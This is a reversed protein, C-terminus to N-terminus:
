KAAAHPAPSSAASASNSVRIKGIATRAAARSSLEGSKESSTACRTRRRKNIASGPCVGRMPVYAPRADSSLQVRATASRAALSNRVLWPRSCAESSSRRPSTAVPPVASNSRIRAWSLSSNRALKTAASPLKDRRERVTSRRCTTSPTVRSPSAVAYPACRAVTARQSADARLASKFPVRALIAAASLSLGSSISLRMSCARLRRSMLMARKRSDSSSPVGCLQVDRHPRATRTPTPRPAFRRSTAASDTTTAWRMNTSTSCILVGDAHMVAARQGDPSAVVRSLHAINGLDLAMAREGRSPDWLELSSRLSVSLLFGGAQAGPALPVFSVAEIEGTQVSGMEAGPKGDRAGWLRIAGDPGGSALWRGDPSFALTRVEDEHADIKQLQRRTQPDWLLVKGDAGGSALRSGDPSFALAFLEGKHAAIVESRGDRSLLHLAGDEGGAALMGDPGIAVANTAEKLPRGLLTGEASWRAVGDAGGSVWSGDAAFAVARAGGRHGAFSRQARGTAGDWMELLGSQDASVLSTGDPSWALARPQNGAGRSGVHARSMGLSWLRVAHDGSGIVLMRGDPSFAADIAQRYSGALDAFQEGSDTDWLRTAGSEALCAVTRCDNTFALDHCTGTMDVPLEVPEPGDLQLVHNAGNSDLAVLRPGECTAIRSISSGEVAYYIPAAPPEWKRLGDLGAGGFVIAGSPLFALGDIPAEAQTRWLEARTASDWVV